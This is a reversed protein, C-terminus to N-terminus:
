EHALLASHVHLGRWPGQYAWLAQRMAKKLKKEQLISPDGQEMQAVRSMGRTVRRLGAVNQDWEEKDLKITLTYCKRPSLM